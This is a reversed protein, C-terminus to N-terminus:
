RRAFARLLASMIGAVAVVQGIWFLFCWKLLDARQAVFDHRLGLIEQRLTGEVHVLGIRQAAVDDRLQSVEQRVKSLEETLRREFREVVHTTVNNECERESLGLLDVLGRTAAAGLEAALPAPVM